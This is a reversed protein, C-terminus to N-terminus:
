SLILSIGIFFFLFRTNSIYFFVLFFLVVFAKKEGSEEENNTLEWRRTATVVSFAFVYDFADTNSPNSVRMRGEERRM